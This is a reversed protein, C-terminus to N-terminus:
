NVNINSMIKEIRLARKRDLIEDPDSLILIDFTIIKNNKIRPIIKYYGEDDIYEKLIIGKHTDFVIIEGFLCDNELKLDGIGHSIESVTRSYYNGSTYWNYNARNDYTHRGVLRKDASLKIIEDINDYFYKGDINKELRMLKM